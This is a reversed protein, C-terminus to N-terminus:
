GAVGPQAKLSLIPNEYGAEVARCAAQEWGPSGIFRWRILPYLGM